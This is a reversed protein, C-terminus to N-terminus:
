MWQDIHFFVRQQLQYFDHPAGYCKFVTGNNTSSSSDNNQHSPVSTSEGSQDNSQLKDPSMNDGVLTGTKMKTYSTDHDILDIPVMIKGMPTGQQSICTNSTLSSTTINSSVNTSSGLQFHAYEFGDQTGDAMDRFQVLDLLGPCTELFKWYEQMSQINLQKKVDRFSSVATIRSVGHKDQTLKWKVYFPDDRNNTNNVCQLILPIIDKHFLATMSVNAIKWHQHPLMRWESSNTGDTATTVNSSQKVSAASSSTNGKEGTGNGSPSFSKL